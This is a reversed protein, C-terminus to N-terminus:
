FVAGDLPGMSGGLDIEMADLDRGVSLSGMREMLSKMSADVNKLQRKNGSCCQSKAFFPFRDGMTLLRQRVDRAAIRLVPKDVLIDFEVMDLLPELTDSKGRLFQTMFITVAELNHSYCYNHSFQCNQRGWLRRFNDFYELSINRAFTLFELFICGMAFVDAGRGYTLRVGHEPAMYKETGHISAVHSSPSEDQTALGFDALLITDGKILINEPKLDRHIGGIAHFDTLATAIDIVWNVIQSAKASPQLDLFGKGPNRFFQPPM